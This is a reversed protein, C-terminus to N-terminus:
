APLPTDSGLSLPPPLRVARRSGAECVVGDDGFISVWGGRCALLGGLVLHDDLLCEFPSCELPSSSSSACVQVASRAAATACYVSRGCPYPGLMGHLERIPDAQSRPSEKIGWCPERYLQGGRRM